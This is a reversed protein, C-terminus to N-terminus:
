GNPDVTYYELFEEDETDEHGLLNEISESDQAQEFMNLKVTGM